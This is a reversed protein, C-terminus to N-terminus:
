GMWIGPFTGWQPGQASPTTCSAGSRSEPEGLWLGGCGKGAELVVLPLPHNGTARQRPQAAPPSSPYFHHGTRDHRTLFLIWLSFVVHGIPCVQLLRRFRMELGRPPLRGLSLSVNVQLFETLLASSIREQTKTRTSQISYCARGHM